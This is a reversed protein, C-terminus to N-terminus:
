YRHGNELEIIYDIVLAQKSVQIVKKVDAIHVSLKAKRMVKVETGCWSVLVFKARQSLQDNAVNMRLYGFAAKEPKLNGVFEALGGSGKGTLVIKNSQDNQYELLLRNNYYLHQRFSLVLLQVCVYWNTDTKDNRVDNYAEVIASDTVDAM